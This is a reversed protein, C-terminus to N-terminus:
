HPPSLRILCVGHRPVTAEFRSDFLGLDRQRWLDRVHQKGQLELDAFALSLDQAFEGRNFLGVAKSGDELNRVMAFQDDTKNLVRGGQGLPDQNVEIVESNCLVNLTFDDLQAMDGSFFLPAAMLSWLSMYAYQENPTLSCPKPPDSQANPSGVSGLLLYDPDNWAGPKSYPSFEANRLAVEFFRTLEFGLDGATRWCHGGVEAGWTSVNGMGYQCLNLVVDRDLKKLLDGMKRYPAKLHELDNGGAVGGYSCWDYKLFDFGWEAFKRAEAEEHRYAGEYGACTRPGPSTYIGAKLGYAHICDTLAKMDPFHKNPRVAGASDRPEGGLLPDADGPKVMWCDDISVYAYGFDAMGSKVMSEAAARLHADSIRHYHTYWHNWGMPPTLALTDGVVFRVTREGRGHQNTATFQVPYTGPKAPANGTVLGKDAELRMGEPLRTTEFRLPRVGTTPVRFIVPHGPRVGYVQPGNIKPEPGPPPTLLVKEEQPADIAVPKEGVVEFKAEAWDAHDFNVNDEGSGVMLLLTSRGTLDVDAAKAAEGAKMVGSRFLTDGDAIVRFEISAPATGVEDDVGVRASFRTSGGKLDIWLVSVAHSGVGREFVKGGVSLPKEQISRNAQAAGWGATMKTLDLDALWVTESLATSACCAVVAVVAALANTQM